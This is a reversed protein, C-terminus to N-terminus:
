IGFESTLRSLHAVVSLLTKYELSALRSLHAVVSLLTKYKLSALRSLHALGPRTYITKSIEPGFSITKLSVSFTYNVEPTITVTTKFECNGSPKIMENGNIPAGVKAQFSQFTLNSSKIEGNRGDKQKPCQYSVILATYNDAITKVNFGEAEIPASENTKIYSTTASASMGASTTALLTFTYDWYSSLNTVSYTTKSWGPIEAQQIQISSSPNTESREFVTLTYNTLGPQPTEPIWNLTVSSHTVASSSFGTPTAAAKTDTLNHLKVYPGYELENVAIVGTTYLMFPLLNTLTYSFHVGPNNLFSRTKNIVTQSIDSCHKDNDVMSMNPCDSCRFVIKQQCSQSQQIQLTLIYGYIVGNPTAPAEWQVFMSKYTINSVSFHTVSTPAKVAGRINEHIYHESRVGSSIAIIELNYYDGPIIGGVYVTERQQGSPSITQTRNYNSSVGTLIVIYNSVIGQSRYFYLTMNPATTNSKVDDYPGPRAPTTRQSRPTSGASQNRGEQVIVSQVTVNYLQGPTLHTIDATNNDYVSVSGNGTPTWEVDYRTVNDAYEDPPSWSIELSTTSTTSINVINPTLLLVPKCVLPNGNWFYGQKCLCRKPDTTSCSANNDSCTDGFRCTMNNDIKSTSFSPTETSTINENKGDQQLKTVIRASYSQGATLRNVTLSTGSTSNSRGGPNVTVEYIISSGQAQSVYKSVSWTFEASWSLVKNVNFSSPLLEEVKHCNGDSNRYRTPVCLCLKDVCDAFYRDPGCLVTSSCPEMLAQITTVTASAGIRNNGISADLITTVTVTYTVGPNLNTINSSRGLSGIHKVGNDPSWSINYRSIGTFDSTQDWMVTANKRHINVFSINNPTLDTMMKCTGDQYYNSKCQCTGSCEANPDSCATTSTCAQGLAVKEQCSTNAQQYFSESCQCITNDCFSNQVTSTCNENTSCTDGLDCLSVQICCTFIVAVVFLLGPFLLRSM